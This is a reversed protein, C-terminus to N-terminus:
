PTPLQGIYDFGYHCILAHSNLVGDVDLFIVKLVVEERLM